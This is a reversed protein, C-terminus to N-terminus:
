CALMSGSPETAGFATPGPLRTSNLDLDPIPASIGLPRNLRFMRMAAKVGTPDTVSKLGSPKKKAPSTSIECRTSIELLSTPALLTTRACKRFWVVRRHCSIPPSISKSVPNRRVRDRWKECHVAIITGTWGTTCGSIVVGLGFVVISGTTTTVGAGDLVGSRVISPPSPPDDDRSMASIAPSDTPNVARHQMSPPAANM